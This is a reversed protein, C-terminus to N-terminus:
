KEIVEEKIYQKVIPYRIIIKNESVATRLTEWFDNRFLLTDVIHRHKSPFPTLEIIKLKGGLFGIDLTFDLLNTRDHVKEVLKKLEDKKLEDMRHVIPPKTRPPEEPYYWSILRPEADKVFVRVEHKFVAPKRVWLISPDGMIMVRESYLILGLAAEPKICICANYQTRPIVVLGHRLPHTLFYTIGLCSDKPSAKDARIFVGNWKSIYKELFRKLESYKKLLNSAIRFPDSEITKFHADKLTETFQEGCKYCDSEITLDRLLPYWYSMRTIYDSSSEM